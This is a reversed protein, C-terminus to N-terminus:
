CSYFSIKKTKQKVSGAPRQTSINHILSSRWLIASLM